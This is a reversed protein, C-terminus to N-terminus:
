SVLGAAVKVLKYEPTWAWGCQEYIDGGDMFMLARKGAEMANLKRFSEEARVMSEASVKISLEDDGIFIGRAYEGMEPIRVADHLIIPVSDSGDDFIFRCAIDTGGEDNVVEVYNRVTGWGPRPRWGIFAKTSPRQVDQVPEDFIEGPVNGRHSLEDVAPNDSTKASATRGELGSDTSPGLVRLIAAVLRAVGADYEDGFLDAHQISALTRGGGIELEPIDCYDFRVPIFWPIDPRRLRLQEIALVLEENQYSKKRAASRSSFCGIFVLANRTIAHRIMARWDEGPWLDATDRWVLIGAAELRQQLRDVDQSDERVYSIFAHGSRTDM